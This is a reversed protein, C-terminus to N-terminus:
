LRRKSLGGSPLSLQRLGLRLGSSIMYAMLLPLILLEMSLILIYYLFTTLSSWTLNTFRDAIAAFSEKVAEVSKGPSLISLESRLNMLEERLTSFRIETKKLDEVTKARIPAIYHRAVADSCVLALPLGYAILLGVFAFRKAWERHEPRWASFLAWLLLGLGAIPLGLGLFGSELLLRYFTLLFLAYLFIHWTVDLYDFAPQILDGIELQISAGLSVGVSSGEIIALGAKITSLTAFVILNEELSSNIRSKAAESLADFGTVFSIGFPLAALLVVSCVTLLLVVFKPKASLPGSDPQTM